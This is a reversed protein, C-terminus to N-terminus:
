LDKLAIIPAFIDNLFRIRYQFRGQQNSGRYPKVNAAIKNGDAIAHGEAKYKWKGNPILIGKDVMVEDFDETTIDMDECYAKRTTFGQYIPRKQKVYPKYDHTDVYDNDECWHQPDFM